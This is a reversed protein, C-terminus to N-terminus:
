LVDVMVLDADHTVSITIAGVDSIAVRDRAHIRVGNGLWGPTL